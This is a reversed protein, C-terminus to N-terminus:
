SCLVSSQEVNRERSMEVEKMFSVMKGSGARNDNRKGFSPRM